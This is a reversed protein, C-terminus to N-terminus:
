REKFKSLFNQSEIIKSRHELPELYKRLEKEADFKYLKKYLADNTTPKSIYFPNNALKKNNQAIKRLKKIKKYKKIYMMNKM